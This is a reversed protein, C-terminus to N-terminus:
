ANHIERPLLKPLNKISREEDSLWWFSDPGYYIDQAWFKEDEHYILEEEGGLSELNSWQRNIRSIAEEETISFLSVMERVIGDCFDQAEVNLLNLNFKM